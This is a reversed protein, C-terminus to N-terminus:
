REDHRPGENAHDARLGQGPYDITVAGKAGPAVKLRPAAKKRAAMYADFAQADAPTPQYPKADADQAKPAVNKM